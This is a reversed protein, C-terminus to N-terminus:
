NLNNIMTDTIFEKDAKTEALRQEETTARTVEAQLADIIDADAQERDTVEQTVMALMRQIESDLREEAKTARETETKVPNSANIQTVVTASGKNKPKPIMRVDIM